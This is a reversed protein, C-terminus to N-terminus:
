WTDNYSTYGDNSKQVKLYNNLKNKIQKSSKIPLYFVNQM